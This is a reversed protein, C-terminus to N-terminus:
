EGSLPRVTTAFREIRALMGDLTRDQLGLILHHVGAGAFERIDTAVQDPTGTFTRRDGNSAQLAERDNYWGASYALDITSPDRGVEAAYQQMRSVAASLQAVTEMPHRPNSGIPYWADGNRVVRRLAAPSEGGIWIPPHPKQAPKPAFTVHDFQTYEGQFSPQQNTWLEKFATLYEDTVTGRHDFSPAGLADFEERMWGAGVGFILRGNSLIDLSTLMKATLVPPRQPLVMVSTLLKLTQTQAAIFTLMTLQELCEGSNGGEYEGTESYPYRSDIARPIVVHDSVSVMNFGLEEAKKVLSALNEPSALAGRTPLSFGIQM